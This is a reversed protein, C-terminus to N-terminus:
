GRVDTVVVDRCRYLSVPIPGAGSSLLSAAFGRVVPNADACQLGKRGGGVCVCHRCSPTSRSAESDVPVFCDNSSPNLCFLLLLWFFFSLFLKFCLMM